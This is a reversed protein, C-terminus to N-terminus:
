KATRNANGGATAVTTPAAATSGTVFGLANRVWGPQSAFMMLGIWLMSLTVTTKQSQKM